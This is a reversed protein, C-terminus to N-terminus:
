RWFMGSEYVEETIRQVTEYTEAEEADDIGTVKIQSGSYDSGTFIVEANPYHRLVEARVERKYAAFSELPNEATASPDLTDPTGHIQIKM